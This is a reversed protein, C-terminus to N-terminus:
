NQLAKEQIPVVSNIEPIFIFLSHDKYSYPEQHCHGWFLKQVKERRSKQCRNLAARFAPENWEGHAPLPVPPFFLFLINTSFHLFAKITSMNWTVEKNSEM